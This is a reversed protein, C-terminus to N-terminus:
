EYHNWWSVSRCKTKNRWITTLIVNENFWDPLVVTHKKGTINYVLWAASNYTEKWRYQVLKNLDKHSNVQILFIHVIVLSNEKVPCISLFTPTSLPFKLKRHFMCSGPIGDRSCVKFGTHNNCINVQLKKFLFYPCYWLWAMM